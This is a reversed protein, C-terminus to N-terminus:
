APEWTGRQNSKEHILVRTGPPAMPTANFDFAGYIQAYASLKPNIRSKHLLNLTITAQPLLRDWLHIPFNKDTSCLGSIFHAKFTRIAREAANTRHIYAPTLQYAIDEAILFDKLVRSAENDLKALKPSLGRIRLIDVVKKYAQKITAAARNKLPEAFICNSDFDYLVFIYQHGQSSIHPFRGTQDSFIKGTRIPIENIAAYM